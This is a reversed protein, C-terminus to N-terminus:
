SASMRFTEVIVVLPQAFNEKASTFKNSWVYPTKDYKIKQRMTMSKKHLFDFFNLSFAKKLKAIKNM